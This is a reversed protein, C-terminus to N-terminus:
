SLSPSAYKKLEFYRLFKDRNRLIVLVNNVIVTM